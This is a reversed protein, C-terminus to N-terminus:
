SAQRGGTGTVTITGGPANYQVANDRAVFTNVWTQQTPPLEARLREVWSRLEDALDPYETILDTLRDQWRTAWRERVEVQRDAPAAEIEAATQDALQEAVEQRRSGARGFMTGMAARAGTWADTAVAGVFASGGAAVVSMLWEPVM